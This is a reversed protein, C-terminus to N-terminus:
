ESKKQLLYKLFYYVKTLLILEVHIKLDIQTLVLETLVNYSKLLFIENIQLM